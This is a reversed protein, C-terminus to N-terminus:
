AYRVRPDLFAYVIDVIINAIIVFIAGFLVTGQIGAIDGTQVSQFAYRGLGPLNFVTEILVTGGLELAFDMGLMSVIPTMAGRMAHKGIVRRELLGKARATRVYDQGLTDLMSSRAMRAYFAAFTIGLVISPLVFSPACRVPNFDICSGQGPFIRLFQGDRSFTYLLVLGVWYDPSSVALLSFGMTARDLLSRRRLASLIGIPIGVVVWIIAGGLALMATVPFRSFLEDRVAVNNFFSRGFDLHFILRNMYHVYQYALSRDLGLNRRIQEILEPSPQRGARLLAPDAGPLVYFIVFTMLSLAFLMLVGWALRRVVYRTM